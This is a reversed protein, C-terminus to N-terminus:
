GLAQAGSVVEILEKTIAAQRAKNRALTLQDIVESANETANRMAIMRASHESTFAELLLGQLRCVAARELLESGVAPVDPEVLVREPWSGAAAPEIPLLRELAANWRLASVFRTAAVWWSSVEGARYAGDMWRFLQEAQSRQLRGGWDLLERERAIRRRSLFRSGRKGIAVVKASPNERLFGIALALVRENYAGCLGTDSSIM